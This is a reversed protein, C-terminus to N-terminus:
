STCTGSVMLTASRACLIDTLAESTMLCIIFSPWITVMLWCSSWSVAIITTSSIPWLAKAALSSSGSAKRASSTSALSTGVWGRAGTTVTMPWTSWPLVESSSWMRVVRTAAPSAPPMVCCM